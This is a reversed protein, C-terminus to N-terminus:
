MREFRLLVRVARSFPLQLPLSRCVLGLAEVIPTAADRETEGDAGKMAIISGNASLCPLALPLFEELRGLARFVILDFAGTLAPDAALSEIRRAEARVGALGLHRIVHRQFRIKKAVADVSLLQLDPRAMKLVLGPLGAGSGLDLMTAVGQLLPLLTLADLLHKEVAEEPVTIATLNHRRNWRQLEEHFWLLQETVRESLEPLGLRGLGTALRQRLDM